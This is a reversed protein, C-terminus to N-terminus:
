IKGRRGRKRRSERKTRSKQTKEEEDSEDGLDSLGSIDSFGSCSESDLQDEPVSDAVSSGVASSDAQTARHGADKIDLALDEGALPKVDDDDFEASVQVNSLDQKM